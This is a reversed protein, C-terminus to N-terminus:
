QNYNFRKSDSVDVENEQIEQQEQIPNQEINSQNVNPDTSGNKIKDLYEQNYLSEYDYEQEEKTQVVINKEKTNDSEEDIEQTDTSELYSIDILDQNTNELSTKNGALRNQISLHEPLEVINFFDLICILMLFCIGVVILSFIGSILKKLGM